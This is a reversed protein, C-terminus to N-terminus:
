YWPIENQVTHYIFTAGTLMFIFIVFVLISIYVKKRGFPIDDRQILGIYLVAVSLEIIIIALEFLM